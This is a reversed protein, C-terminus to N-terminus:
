RKSAEMRTSHTQLMSVLMAISIGLGKEMCQKASYVKHMSTMAGSHQPDFGNSQVRKHDAVVRVPVKRVVAKVRLGISYQGGLSPAM